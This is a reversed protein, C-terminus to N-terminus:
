SEKRWNAILLDYQFKSIGLGGGGKEQNEKQPSNSIKCHWNLLMLDNKCLATAYQIHNRSVNKRYHNLAKLAVYLHIEIEKYM